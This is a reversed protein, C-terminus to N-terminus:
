LLSLATLHITAVFSPHKSVKAAIQEVKPLSSRTSTDLAKREFAEDPDRLRVAPVPM